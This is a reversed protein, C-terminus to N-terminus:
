RTLTTLHTVSVRADRMLAVCHYTCIAALRVQTMVHLLKGIISGCGKIRVFSGNKLQPTVVAAAGLGTQSPSPGNSTYPSAYDKQQSQLEISNTDITQSAAFVLAPHDTQTDCDM